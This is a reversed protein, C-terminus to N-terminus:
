EPRGDNFRRAHYALIIQWSPLPQRAGGFLGYRPRANRRNEPISIQWQPVKPSREAWSHDARHQAVVGDSAREAGPLVAQAAGDPGDDFRSLIAM